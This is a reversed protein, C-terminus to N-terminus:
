GAENEKGMVKSGLLVSDRQRLLAKQPVWAIDLLIRFNADSDSITSYM